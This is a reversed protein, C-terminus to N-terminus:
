TITCKEDSVCTIEKQNTTATTTKEVKKPTIKYINTRDETWQPDLEAKSVQIHLGTSCTILYIVDNLNLHKM